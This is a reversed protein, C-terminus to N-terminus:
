EFVFSTKVSIDLADLARIRVPPRLRGRRRVLIESHHARGRGRRSRSHSRVQGLRISGQGSFAQIGVRHGVMWFALAGFVVMVSKLPGAETSKGM